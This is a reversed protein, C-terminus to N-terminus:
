TNIISKPIWAVHKNCTKCIVKGAHTGQTLVVDLEHKGHKGQQIGQYFQEQKQKKQHWTKDFGQKPNTWYSNNMGTINRSHNLTYNLKAM